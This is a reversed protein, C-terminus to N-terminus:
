FLKLQGKKEPIEDEKLTHDWWFEPQACEEQKGGNYLLYWKNLLPSYCADFYSNRSRVFLRVGTPIRDLQIIRWAM